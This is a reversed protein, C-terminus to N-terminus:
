WRRISEMESHDLDLNSTIKRVASCSGFRRGSSEWLVGAPGESSEQIVGQRIGSPYFSPLITSGPVCSVHFIKRVASCSGFLRGSSQGLVGARGESSEQIVGINGWHSGWMVM